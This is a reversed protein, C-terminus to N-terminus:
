GDPRQHQGGRATIWAALQTRKVFGLKALIHEVHSEATRTSIVLRTAIERNTLGQGVLEAVQMERPTLPDAPPTAAPERHSQQPRIGTLAYAV